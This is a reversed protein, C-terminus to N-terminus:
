ASFDDLSARVKNWCSQIYCGIYAADQWLDLQRLCDAETIRGGTAAETENCKMGESLFTADTKEVCKVVGAPDACGDGNPVLKATTLILLCSLVSALRAFHM